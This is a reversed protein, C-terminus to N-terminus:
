KKIAGKFLELVIEYPSDIIFSTDDIFLSTRNKEGTENLRILAIDPIFLTTPTVSEIVEVSMDMDKADEIEQVNDAYIIPLEIMIM